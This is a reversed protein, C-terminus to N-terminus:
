DKFSFANPVGGFFDQPPDKITEFPGHLQWLGFNFFESSGDIVDDVLSVALQFVKFGEKALTGMGTLADRTTWGNEGWQVLGQVTGLSGVFM